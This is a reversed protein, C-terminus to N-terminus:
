ENPKIKKLTPLKLEVPVAFQPTYKDLLQKFQELNAERSFKEACKRSLTHAGGLLRIYNDFVHLFGRKATDVDVNFWQAQPVIVGEWVAGPEVKKIEGPLLVAEDPNLFDLQGSWGSALIPKASQTAQLLPLGFGEGKTFSVHVKVKPHNYLENMQPETLEGHLLYVNPCGPGVLKKISNVKEVIEDQDMYSFGAGSTKLILTPRKKEPYNRFTECFTKVLVGVNKRDEGLGGKLWHGVFLYCFREKVVNFVDNIEASISREHIKHFIDTDMCNHLVDIPKDLKIVGVVQGTENRQEIVTDALVRKSHESTALILDMRNMGIVWEHSCLTTEIGATILINFKGQPQAENPVGIHIYLEPQRPMQFPPVMIRELIKADKASESSLANMPTAGWPCSIIKVDYKDLEILHHIIERSQDGYGSRTAVPAYVVCIPRM